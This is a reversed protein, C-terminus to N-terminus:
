VHQCNAHQFSTPRDLGAPLYSTPTLIPRAPPPSIKPLWAALSPDAENGFLPLRPYLLLADEERESEGKRMMWGVSASDGQIEGLLLEADKCKCVM